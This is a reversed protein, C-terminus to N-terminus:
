SSPSGALVTVGRRNESWCSANSCLAVPREKGYSVTRLRSAEVGESVLFTRVSEARRAGLAINYERTGREDAHGEITASLGPNNRLWEAQAILTAQSAVDVQASDTIFFVRDGIVTNFYEPSNVPPIDSGSVGGGTTSNALPDAGIPNEASDDTSSCAGLLLCGALATAIIAKM